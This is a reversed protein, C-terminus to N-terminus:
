KNRTDKRNPMLAELIDAVDMDRSELVAEEAQEIELSPTFRAVEEEFNFM